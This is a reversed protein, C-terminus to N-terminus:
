SVMSFPRSFNRGKAIPVPKRNGPLPPLPKSLLLIEKQLEVPDLCLTLLSSRASLPTKLPSKLLSQEEQTLQEELIPAMVQVTRRMVEGGTQLGRLGVSARSEGTLSFSKNMLVPLLKNSPGQHISPTRQHSFRKPQTTPPLPFDWPLTKPISPLQTSPRTPLSVPRKPSSPTRLCLSAPRPKQLRAPMTNTLFRLGAGSPIFFHFILFSARSKVLSVPITTSESPCLANTKNKIVHFFLM